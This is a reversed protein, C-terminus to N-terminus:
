NVNILSDFFLHIDIDTEGENVRNKTKILNKKLKRNRIFIHPFVNMIHCYELYEFYVNDDYEAVFLIKQANQKSFFFQQHIMYSEDKFM